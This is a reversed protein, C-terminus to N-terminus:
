KQRVLTLSTACSAQEGTPKGTTPDIGNFIVPPGGSIIIVMQDKSIVGHQPINDVCDVKGPYPGSVLTNCSLTGEALRLSINGAADLTYTFEYSLNSSGACPPYNAGLDPNPLENLHVVGTVSGTGDSNFTFVEEGSSTDIVYGLPGNPGGVQRPIMNQDFGAVAVLCQGTGAGAYKGKIARPGATSATVALILPVVVIIMVLVTLKKINGKM